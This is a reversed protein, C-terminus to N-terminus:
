KIAETTGLTEGLQIQCIGIIPHPNAFAVFLLGIEPGSVAVELILNHRESKRISRGDKLAIDILDERLLQIDENDYIQVVDSRYRLGRSLESPPRVSPGLGVESIKAM